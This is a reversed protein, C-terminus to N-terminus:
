KSKRRRETAYAIAVSQKIAARKSSPHSTGISGKQQYTDVLEKVNSSRIKNREQRSASPPTRQLPM